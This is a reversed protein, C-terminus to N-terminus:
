TLELLSVVHRSPAHAIVNLVFPKTVDELTDDVYRGEFTIVVEMRCPTYGADKQTKDAWSVAPEVARIFM